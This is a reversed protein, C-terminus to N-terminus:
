SLTDRLGQPIFRVIRSIRTVAEEQNKHQILSKSTPQLTPQKIFFGAFGAGNQRAQRGKEIRAACM